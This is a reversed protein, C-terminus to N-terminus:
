WSVPKGPAPGRARRLPRAETFINRSAFEAPSAYTIYARMVDDDFPTTHWANDFLAFDRFAWKPLVSLAFDNALYEAVAGMLADHRPETLPPADRLMAVRTAEDRALYFTDLFEPLAKEITEGAINKQRRQSPVRACRNNDRWGAPTKGCLTAQRCGGRQPFFESLIQIAQDVETVGIVKLLHGADALDLPGNKFNAVRFSKLKLAM